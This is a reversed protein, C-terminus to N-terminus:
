KKNVSAYCCETLSHVHFREAPVFDDWPPVGVAYHGDFCPAADTM